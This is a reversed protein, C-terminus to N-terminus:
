EIVEDIEVNKELAQNIYGAFEDYSMDDYCIEEYTDPECGFCEDYAVFLKKLHDDFNGKWM